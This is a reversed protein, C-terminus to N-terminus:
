YRSITSNELTHNFIFTLSINVFNMAGYTFSFFIGTISLKAAGGGWFFDYSIGTKFLNAAGGAAEGWVCSIYFFVTISLNAAGGGGESISM